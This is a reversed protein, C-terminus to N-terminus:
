ARDGEALRELAKKVKDIFLGARGQRLEPDRLENSIKLRQEESLRQDKALERLRNKQAESAPQENPHPKQDEVLQAWRDPDDNDTAIQFQALIFTKLGYTYAKGPGKELPDAGQSYWDVCIYESPDAAHTWRFTFWLQTLSQSGKPTLGLVANTVHPILLVGLEDMKERVAALTASASVYAYGVKSGDRDKQLYKVARRIELLKEHLNM